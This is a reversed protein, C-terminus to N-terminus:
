DDAAPGHAFSLASHVSAETPSQVPVSVVLNSGACSLPRSRVLANIGYKYDDTKVKDHWTVANTWTTRRPSHPTEESGSTINAFKKKTVGKGSWKNILVEANKRHHGHGEDRLHYMGDTTAEGIKVSVLRLDSDIEGTNLERHIRALLSQKSKEIHLDCQNGQPLCEDFVRNCSLCRASFFSEDKQRIREDLESLSKRIQALDKTQLGRFSKEVAAKHTFAADQLTNFSSVVNASIATLKSGIESQYALNQENANAFKQEMLEFQKDWESNIRRLHDNVYVKLDKMMTTAEAAKEEAKEQLATVRLYEDYQKQAAAAMEANEANRLFEKETTSVVIDTLRRGTDAMEEALKNNKFSAINQQKRIDTLDAMIVDPIETIRMEKLGGLAETQARLSARFDPLEAVCDEVVKLREHLRILVTDEQSATTSNRVNEAVPVHVPPTDETAAAAGSVSCEDDSHRLQSDREPEDILHISDRADDMVNVGLMSERFKPWPKAELAKYANQDEQLAKIDNQMDQIAEQMYEMANNKGMQAKVFNTMNDLADQLGDCTLIVRGRKMSLQVLPTM